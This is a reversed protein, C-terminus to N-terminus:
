GAASHGSIDQVSTGTGEDMGWQGATLISSHKAIEEASLVTPYINLEDIVGNFYYGSYHYYSSASGVSLWAAPKSCIAEATGTVTGDLVGNIYLKAEGTASDYTGAVHYWNSSSLTTNGHFAVNWSDGAVNGILLYLKGARTAFYYTKNGKCAIVHYGSRTDPKIWAEITLKDTINLSSGSGCNVYDDVGDFQLAKGIKGSVWCDPATMNALTGNNSNGSRDTAATGATEDLSWRGVIAQRAHLSVTDDNLASTYVHVEDLKGCFSNGGLTMDSIQSSDVTYGSLCTLDREKVGNLYLKMTNGTKIGTVHYWQGTQISTSTKVGSWYNWQSDGGAADATIRYQFHLKGDMSSYILRYLGNDLPKANDTLSDFQIWAELTLPETINLTSGNGCDVYDDTGDFALCGDIKGTTWCSSGDMNHLSGMNRSGSSDQLFMGQIDDFLWQGSLQNNQFHRAIEDAGLVTPYINLEDIVGNFYYGSYHYYSSASGVSLWAAPKSCIAEATGTVTGDLVGKIYLKAEGTASDYTGAVHYWNSSSLTTNGHLVVNWSDGAANGILLYLKGDRTAFYYTNNGKCAIVHYGSRTDPKIWAELTLKDAIDLSSGAGCNIYDDVGDFSLAKGIKGNVWRGVDPNSLTVTSSSPQLTSTSTDTGAVTVGCFASTQDVGGTLDPNSQTLPTAMVLIKGGANKYSNLATVTAQSLGDGMDEPIIILSYRQLNDVDLAFQSGLVLGDVDMFPYMATTLTLVKDTYDTETDAPHKMVFPNPNVAVAIKSSTIGGQWYDMLNLWDTMNSQGFYLSLERESIGFYDNYIDGNTQTFTSSSGYYDRIYDIYLPTRYEYWSISGGHFAYAYNYALIQGKYSLGLDTYCGKINEYPKFRFQIGSSQIVVMEDCVNELGIVDYGWKWPHYSYDEPLYYVFSTKLDHNAANQKIQCMFNNVLSTKYLCYRRWWKDGADIAPMASGGYPENFTAQCYSSFDIVDDAHDDYAETVDVEHFMIGELTYNHSAGIYDAYNTAIEDIVANYLGIMRQDNLGYIDTGPYVGNPTTWVLWVKMNHAAAETLLEHLFDRGGMHSDTVAYQVQTPHLFPGGRGPQEFFYVKTAGIAALDDVIMSAPMPDGVCHQWIGWPGAPSFWVAKEGSWCWGATLIICAITGLMLKCIIRCM